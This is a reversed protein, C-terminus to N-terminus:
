ARDYVGDGYRYNQPPAQQQYPSSSYGGNDLEAVPPNYGYGTEPKNHPPLHDPNYGTYPYASAGGTHYQEATNDTAYSQRGDVTTGGGGVLQDPTTHSPLMNEDAAPDAERNRHFIRAFLGGAGAAGAVSAGGGVGAANSSPKSGYGSTYDNTPGPGFRKAKRHHRVLAVETLISFIFFFIAIIAVALCATQLRCATHFSPLVTFGGSGEVTNGDKGRGFPTDLYGTCSGAGNRNAVAVYIFAGVFAVDLVIAVFSVFPLGAVCCLLLLALFTYLVAAGSIGEVARVENPIPLNHNALVALFYSFVGLILAASCLQVARIAWQLIKLASGAKAGM